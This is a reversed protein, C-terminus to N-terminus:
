AIETLTGNVLRYEKITTDETGDTDDTLTVTKRYGVITEGADNEIYVEFVTVEEGETALAQGLKFEAYSAAVPVLTDSDEAKIKPPPSPPPM